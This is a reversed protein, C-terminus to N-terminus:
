KRHGVPMVILPEHDKPLHLVEALRKDDFAGAIGAALGLAEAQLFINQCAHGAEILAYRRGRSGYKIEIRRYEATVVLSVPAQALWMQGLGARAVSERLDEECIRQLGHPGPMYRYVGAQLGEAAGKGVVVYVDLPYLAGGSPAARLVGDEGTIGQAAWLLQSVSELALPRESYSRRTRRSAIAEEVSVSGKAAPKPLVLLAGEKSTGQSLAALPVIWLLAHLLLSQILFARTM